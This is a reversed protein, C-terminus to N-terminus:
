KIITRIDKINDIEVIKIKDYKKQKNNKPIVIEKFGMREFDSIIRDINPVKKIEGTLSVEGIFAIDTSIPIKSIASDIAAVIGLGIYNDKVRIGNSTQVYIDKKKTNESIKNEMVALLIQLFDKSIGQSIRSPYTFNNTEALATIEIAITRTGEKIASIASGAVPTTRETIFYKNPNTIEKLGDERMEFLGVESTDGFRNKTSKLMRLMGSEDGISLTFVADVLHEFERSGRLEDEKTVQGVFFVCINKDSGKAKNLISSTCYLLQKEGGLTGECQSSFMMQISDIILFDPSIVDITDCITELNTESKIFIRESINPLIREARLKIQSESEEGAIYLVNHGQEALAQSVSLLLTSKGTGPPASIVNVSDPVLGGGVVRDFENINTKLLNGTNLAIVEKLKNAKTNRSTMRTQTVKDDQEEIQLELTGFSKCNPCKGYQVASKYGCESCIYSKNNKAM